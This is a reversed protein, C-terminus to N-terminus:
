NSGYRVYKSITCLLNTDASPNNEVLKEFAAPSISEPTIDHDEDLLGGTRKGTAKDYIGLLYDNMAKMYEAKQNNYRAVKRNLEPTVTDGAHDMVEQELEDYGEPKVRESANMQLTDYEDSVPRLERMNRLMALRDLVPVGTFKVSAYARYLAIAERTKM